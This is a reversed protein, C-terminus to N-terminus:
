IYALATLRGKAGDCDRFAAGSYGCTYALAPMGKYEMAFHALNALVNIMKRRVIELADRM